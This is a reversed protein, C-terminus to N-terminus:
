ALPRTGGCEYWGFSAVLAIAISRVRSSAPSGAVPNTKQREILAELDQRLYEVGARSSRSRRCRARAARSCHRPRECGRGLGRAPAGAAEHGRRPRREGRMERAVLM